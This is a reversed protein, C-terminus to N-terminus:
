KDSFNEAFSGWDEREQEDMIDGNKDQCEKCVNSYGEFENEELEENCQKCKKM